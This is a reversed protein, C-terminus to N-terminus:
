RASKGRRIKEDVLREGVLNGIRCPIFRMPTCVGDTPKQSISRAVPTDALNEIERKLEADAFGRRITEDLGNRAPPVTIDSTSRL